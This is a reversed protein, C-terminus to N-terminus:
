FVHYNAKKPQAPPTAPTTETDTLLPTLYLRLLAKAKNLRSQVTGVPIGLLSAVEKYAFGEVYALVFAERYLTPLAAIGSELHRLVEVRQCHALPDSADDDAPLTDSLAETDKDHSQRQHQRYVRVAIGCLWTALAGEGRWSALSRYAALFTEQALDEATATDGGTLRRLLNYIRAAHREYIKEFSRTDGACARRVLWRDLLPM